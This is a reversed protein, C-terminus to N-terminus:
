TVAQGVLPEVGLIKAVNSAEEAAGKLQQLGLGM